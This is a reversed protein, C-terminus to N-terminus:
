PLARLLEARQRDKARGFWALLRLQSAIDPLRVPGWVDGGALQVARWRDAVKVQLGGMVEVALPAFAYRAFCSRFRESDAPRYQIVARPQWITALRQADAVTTLLDLDAVTVPAGRLCAAASGILYVPERAHLRLDATIAALTQAILTSSADATTTM